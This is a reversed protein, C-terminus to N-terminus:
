TPVLTRVKTLAFDFLAYKKHIIAWCETCYASTTGCSHNDEDRDDAMDRLVALQETVMHQHREEWPRRFDLLIHMHLVERVRLM